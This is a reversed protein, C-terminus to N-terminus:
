FIKRFIQLKKLVILLFAATIGIIYETWRFMHFIQSVFIIVITMYKNNIVLAPIFITSGNPNEYNNYLCIIYFVLSRSLYYSKLFKITSLYLIVLCGFILCLFYNKRRNFFLYRNELSKSYSVFLILEYIFGISFIHDFYLFTKLYSSILKSKFLFYKYKFYSSFVGTLIGTILYIIFFGKTILPIEKIYRIIYM